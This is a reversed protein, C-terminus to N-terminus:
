QSSIITNVTTKEQELEETTIRIKEKAFDSLNLGQVISYEGNTITVPYSFVLGEPVGYSGESIVGMSVFSGEKTGLFWDRMHCVIARSASQASSAGRQAIVAGGRNQILTIFENNLFQEDLVESTKLDKGEKHVIANSCDPFQTTSHNGWIIVNSVDGPFVGARKAIESVARNQDLRTLASFNKRPISPAYQSAILCNTNAPNGVVLVKVNRSAYQEILAGHAKFIGLNKELLDKREMGKLRPFAGVMVIADVGTFAQIPDTTAVIGHLLPFAGDNLEMEVGLLAPKAQEMELLHLIVNNNPGFMSGDAVAFCVAYGIQGAAGTILVRLTNSQAQM